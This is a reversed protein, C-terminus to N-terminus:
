SEKRPHRGRRVGPGAAPSSAAHAKMEPHDPDNPPLTSARREVSGTRSVFYSGGETARFPRGTPEDTETM